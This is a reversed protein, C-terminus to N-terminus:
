PSWRAASFEPAGDANVLIGKLEKRIWLFAYERVLPIVTDSEAGSHDPDRDMLHLAIARDPGPDVTEVLIRDALLDARLRSAIRGATPDGADRVLQLRPRAGASVPRPGTDPSGSRIPEAGPGFLVRAMGDRDIRAALWRRFNPDNVWRAVSDVELHWFRDWSPVRVAVMGDPPQPKGYVVEVDAAGTGPPVQFFRDLGALSSELRAALAPNEPIGVRIV